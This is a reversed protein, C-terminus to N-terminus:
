PLECADSGSPVMGTSDLRCGKRSAARTNIAAPRDGPEQSSPLRGPEGFHASRACKPMAAPRVTSSDLVTKAFHNELDATDGSM